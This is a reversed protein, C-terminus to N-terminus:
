SLRKEEDNKEKSIMFIVSAPCSKACKKCGICINADAAAFTGKYVSIAGSPCVKVCTGCSVCQKHNVRAVYKAAM